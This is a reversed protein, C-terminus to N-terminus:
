AYRRSAEFAEVLSLIEDDLNDDILHLSPSVRPGSGSGNAVYIEEGLRELDTGTPIKHNIDKCFMLYVALTHVCFCWKKYEPCSIGCKAKKFSDKCGATYGDVYTVTNFDTVTWHYFDEDFLIGEPQLKAIQVESLPVPLLLTKHIMVGFPDFSDLNVGFRENAEAMANRFLSAAAWHHETIGRFGIEKNRVILGHYVGTLHIAMWQLLHMGTAFKQTVFTSRLVNWYSEAVNNQFIAM